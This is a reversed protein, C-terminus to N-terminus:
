PLPFTGIGTKIGTKQSNLMFLYKEEGVSICSKKKKTPKVHHSGSVLPQISTCMQLGLTLLVQSCHVEVKYLTKNMNTVGM